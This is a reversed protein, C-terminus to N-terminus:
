TRTTPEAANKELIATTSVKSNYELVVKLKGGYKEVLRKKVDQHPTHSSVALVDPKLAAMFREHDEEQDFQEPLAFVYDVAPFGALKKLRQALPWNPRGSGKLHKVRVDTEVGVFLSDGMGKAAQLFKKHETHLLDFVGTALVITQNQRRLRQAQIQAQSLTVLQVVGAM